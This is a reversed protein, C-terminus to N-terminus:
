RLSWFPEDKLVHRNFREFSHLAFVAGLLWYSYNKLRLGIMMEKATAEGPHHVIAFGYAAAFFISAVLLFGFFMKVRTSVCISAAYMTAAITISTTSIEDTLVQEIILPSLPLLLQLLVSLLFDGLGGGETGVPRHYDDV